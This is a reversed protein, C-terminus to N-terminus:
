GSFAFLGGYHLVLRGERTYKRTTDVVSKSRPRAVQGQYASVAGIQSGGQSGEYYSQRSTNGEYGGRVSDPNRGRSGYSDNRSHHSPAPSHNRFGNLAVEQGSPMPSMSRHSYATYQGKSNATGPRSQTYPNPSNGRSYSNMPQPQPSTNRYRHDGYLQPRPSVSRNTPVPSVSRNNEQRNRPIDHSSQRSQARNGAYDMTNARQRGSNGRLSNEAAAAPMQPPGDLMQDRQNVYRKTSEIMQASTFAPPPLGLASSKPPAYGPLPTGRQSSATGPNSNPTPITGPTPTALGFYRDATNRSGTSGKTVGKLEALAQAIPDLDPVEEEEEQPKQLSRDKIAPTSVDFVNGGVNLALSARPDIPEPSEHRDNGILLEQQRRNSSGSEYGGRNQGGQSAITNKTITGPAWTNRNSRASSSGTPRNQAQEQQRQAEIRRQQTVQQQQQAQQQQAQQQQAQQQQQQAQQQQVQQQQLQMQRNSEKESKSKRRFPGGSSFFGSRRKQTPDDKTIQQQKTPSGRRDGGISPPPVVDGLSSVSTPNSYDSGSAHSSPPRAVPSGSSSAADSVLAGPRCYMTMGDLPYENHPTSQRQSNEREYQQTRSATSSSLAYQTDRRSRSSPTANQLIERNAPPTLPEASRLRQDRSNRRSHERHELERRELDKRELEQRESERRDHERRQRDRSRASQSQAQLEPTSKSQIRSMVESPPTSGSQSSSTM